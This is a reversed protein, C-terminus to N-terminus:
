KNGKALPQGVFVKEGNQVDFTFDLPAEMILVISSGLNFEGFYAGKQIDKASQVYNFCQEDVHKDKKFKGKLNTKLDDDIEVKISGVNTAGVAAFAFFYGDADSQLNNEPYWKGFYVVRENLSM